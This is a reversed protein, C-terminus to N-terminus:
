YNGAVDLALSHYNRNCNYSTFFCFLGVCFCLTYVCFKRLVVGGEKAGELPADRFNNPRYMKILIQGNKSLNERQLAIERGGENYESEESRFAEVLQM